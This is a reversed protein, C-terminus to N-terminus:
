WAASSAFAAQQKPKHSFLLFLHFQWLTTSWGMKMVALAQSFHITLLLLYLFEHLPQHVALTSLSEGFPLSNVLNRQRGWKYVCPDVQSAQLYATCLSGTFIMWTGVTDCVAGSTASETKWKTQAHWARFIRRHKWLGCRLGGLLQESGAESKNFPQLDVDQLRMCRWCTQCLSVPTSLCYLQVMNSCFAVIVHKKMCLVYSTETNKCAVKGM